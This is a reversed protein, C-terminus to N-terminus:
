FRSKWLQRNTLTSGQLKWEQGLFSKLNTLFAYLLVMNLLQGILFGPGQMIINNTRFKVNLSYYTLVILTTIITFVSPRKSSILWFNLDHACIIYRENAVFDSKETSAQCYHNLSLKSDSELSNIM